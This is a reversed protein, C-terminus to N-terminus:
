GAPWTSKIKSVLDHMGLAGHWEQILKGGEKFLIVPVSSVSEGELAPDEVDISKLAIGPLELDSFWELMAHCSTCWPATVLIVEKV